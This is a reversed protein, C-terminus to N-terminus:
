LYGYFMKLASARWFKGLKPNKTQFYVMQCGQKPCSKSSIKKIFPKHFTQSMARFAILAVTIIKESHASCTSQCTGGIEMRVNNGALFQAPDLTVRHTQSFTALVTACGKIQRFKYMVPVTSFPAWFNASSRYNEFYHGFYVISLHAFIRGIQDGQYPLV